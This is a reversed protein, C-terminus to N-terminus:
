GDGVEHVIRRQEVADARPAGEARSEEFQLMWDLVDQDTVHKGNKTEVLLDVESTSGVVDRIVHLNKLVSSNSPVFKEPDTETPIKSSVYLGVLAVVLAVAAIPALRGITRATLGRVIREVEFRSRAPTDSGIRRRERLYIVGSVLTISVAFVIVAGVALMSGFDRIMPVKSVHLVIFGICAALAAMVLAPGLRVFARELGAEASGTAQTEEELRSHVQIAFDVGLGILIPLGSITVMTLPIGTFGMLGFASVCGILVAPLSLLRWRARFVLFLVAVMIVVAFIAMIVLASKMRDNIEKILLPPGSTLTTVGDFDYAALDQKTRAAVNANDDISLNGQLRAVMLAHQSDPFIGALEPRIKGDAGYIVFQVFRPNDLTQEGADVFRKADAGFEANFEDDVRQRAANAASEQQEPTEGRAASAARAADTATQEDAALKVPQSVIRQQIQVKAFEVVALPTLVNAFDGSANLDDQLRQMTARNGPTFLQTIDTGDAATFLVLM